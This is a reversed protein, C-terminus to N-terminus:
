PGIGGLGDGEAKRHDPQRVEALSGHLDGAQGRDQSMGTLSASARARFYPIAPLSPLPPNPVRTSFPIMVTLGTRALAAGRRRSWIPARRNPTDPHAGSM